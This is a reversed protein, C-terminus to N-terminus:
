YLPVPMGWEVEQLLQHAVSAKWKRSYAMRDLVNRLAKFTIQNMSGSTAHVVVAERVIIPAKGPFICEFPKYAYHNLMITSVFDDDQYWLKTRPYFGHKFDARRFFFCWGTFGLIARTRESYEGFYDPSSPKAYPPINDHKAQFTMPSTAGIWEYMELPALLKEISGISFSVDNNVIGVYTTDALALGQNWAKTVGLNRRNRVVKVDPFDSRVKEWTGDVSGNDILVVVSTSIQAGISSLCDYTDQYRNLVPVIITLDHFRNMLM